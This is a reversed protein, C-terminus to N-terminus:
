IVIPAAAVTVGAAVRIAVPSLPQHCVLRANIKIQKIEIVDNRM